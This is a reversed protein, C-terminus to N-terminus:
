SALQQDEDDTPPGRQSGPGRVELHKLIKDVVPPDTLFSIIRMRHGCEGCLLPDAEYIRRILLAWQRRLRRRETSSPEQEPSAAATNVSEGTEAAKRRKARAASSYHGSYRVLHLRPEPVHMLLRALLEQRDLAEGEPGTAQKHRYRAVAGDLELRELSLPPRLLYRALREVGVSDDASATVRNHASFGSHRSKWSDLLELREPGLLGEEELFALVKQRLPPRGPWRRRRRTSTPYPTGHGAMIGAAVHHWLM